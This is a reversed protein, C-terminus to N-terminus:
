NLFVTLAQNLSLIQQAGLQNWSLLQAVEVKYRRAISWLTDGAVVVHVLRNSEAAAAGTSFKKGTLGRKNVVVTPATVSSGFSAVPVLLTGGARISTGTIHNASKLATVSVGYRRAIASLTDGRNIKHDRYELPPTTKLNEIAEDVKALAGLPVLLRHPGDPPTAWRLFGANLDRLVPLSIESQEAFSHLDIQGPLHIIEFHQTDAIVPLTVSYADPSAIINKLALLKPVYRITENRLLLDQYRTNRDKHKNAAIARQITGPGANYAALTLFWDGDFQHNLETLYDLAANTAAVPDRRGDYWWNQHLGFHRGTSPIFQWLGGAKSRSVANPKYASEVAPLLALETPLGRREIEELIYFLYPEARTFLDRLYTPHRTSWREYQRIYSSAYEPLVFGARMRAFLDHPSAKEAPLTPTEEPTTNEAPRDIDPGSARPDLVVDGAPVGSGHDVQKAQRLHGCATQVVLLAVIFLLRFLM